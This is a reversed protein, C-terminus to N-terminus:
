VGERAILATKCIGETISKFSPRQGYQAFITGPGGDGFKYGDVTKSGMGVRFDITWGEEGLKEVIAWAISLYKADELGGFTVNFQERVLDLLKEEDMALIEERNM